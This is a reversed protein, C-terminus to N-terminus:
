WNAQDKAKRVATKAAQERIRKKGRKTLGMLRIESDRRTAEIRRLVKNDHYRKVMGKTLVGRDYLYKCAKFEANSMQKINLLYLEYKFDEANGDYAEGQYEFWCLHGSLYYADFGIPERISPVAMQPWAPHDTMTMWKHLPLVKLKPRFNKSNM